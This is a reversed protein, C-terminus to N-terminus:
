AYNRRLFSNSFSSHIDFFIFSKFLLINCTRIITGYYLIIISRIKIFYSKFFVSVLLCLISIAISNNSLLFLLKGYSPNSAVVLFICNGLQANIKIFFYILLHNLLDYLTLVFAYLYAKMSHLFKM